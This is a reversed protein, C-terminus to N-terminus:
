VSIGNKRIYVTAGATDTGGDTGDTDILRAQVIFGYVGTVTTSQIGPDAADKDIVGGDFPVTDYVTGDPSALIQWACHETPSSNQPDYSVTVQATEGPELTEEYDSSSVQATAFTGNLALTDSTVLNSWSM